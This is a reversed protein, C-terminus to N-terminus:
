ASKELQKAAVWESEMEELTSEEFRKNRERFRDEIYGFRREFKRNTDRLADEPDVGLHRALNACVFLLDGVEEKLHAPNSGAERIEQLEEELKDFVQTISPWDFGVRAARKQLKEARSLAPLALPIDALISTSNSKAQREAAKIEDWRKTVARADDAQAEGFVHPHRHIMKDSISKAVDEFSFVGLESAMQSHFVVQLLLDGLEQQLETLDNKAIADAVEYAEEITYTAISAFNQEIDWPCGTEKNRLQRMIELLRQMHPLPPNHM